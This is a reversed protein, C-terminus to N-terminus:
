LWITFWTAKGQTMGVDFYLPTFTTQTFGGNNRTTVGVLNEFRFTCVFFEVQYNVYWKVINISWACLGAAAFSIKRVEDPNFDKDAMYQRAARLCNEHIHEKDYNILSDLFQEV